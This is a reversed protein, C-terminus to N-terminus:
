SAARAGTGFSAVTFCFATAGFCLTPVLFFHYLSIVLAVMYGAALARSTAAMLLADGAARRAVILGLGGTLALNLSMLLSFGNVFDMMSRQAGGPLTSKYNTALETLQRETDNAPPAPPTLHAGAMHLAATFFALYCGIKFFTRAM